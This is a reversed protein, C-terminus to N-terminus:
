FAGLLIAGVFVFAACVALVNLRLSLDVTTGGKNTYRSALVSRAPTSHSVRRRRHFKRSDAHAVPMGRCSNSQDRCVFAACLFAASRYPRALPWNRAFQTLAPQISGFHATALYWDACIQMCQPQEIIFRDLFPEIAPLFWLRLKDSLSVCEDAVAKGAFQL